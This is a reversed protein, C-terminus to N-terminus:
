RADGALLRNWLETAATSRMPHTECAGSGTTLRRIIRLGGLSWLEWVEAACGCTKALLRGRDPDNLGARRWEIPEAALKRRHAHIFHHPELWPTESQLGGDRAAARTGDPRAAAQQLNPTPAPPPAQAAQSDRADRVCAGCASDTNYRSLKTGCGCRGAIASKM